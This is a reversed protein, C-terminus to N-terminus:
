KSLAEIRAVVRRSTDAISSIAGLREDWKAQQARVIELVESVAPLFKMTGIIQWIAADLAPMTLDDVTRVNEILMTVYVVPDSPAGNPFGGVLQAVREGIVSRKLNGECDNDEYSSEPDFMQLAAECQALMAEDHENLTAAKKADAFLKDILEANKLADMKKRVISPLKELEDYRKVIRDADDAFKKLSHLPHAPKSNKLPIVESV